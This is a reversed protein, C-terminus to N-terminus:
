HTIPPQQNTCLLRRIRGGGIVLHRRRSEKALNSLQLFFSLTYFGSSLTRKQDQGFSDLAGLKRHFVTFRFLEIIAWDRDAEVPVLEIRITPGLKRTPFFIPDPFKPSNRSPLFMYVLSCTAMLSSGIFDLAGWSCKSYRYM